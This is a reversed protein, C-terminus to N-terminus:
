IFYLSNDTEDEIVFGKHLLLMRNIEPVEGSFLFTELQKYPIINGIDPLLRINSKDIKSQSISQM